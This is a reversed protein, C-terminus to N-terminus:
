PRRLEVGESPFRRDFTYVASPSLSRAAAWILADGLSVRGSPRCLLLAAIVTAKDISHFLINRRQLLAVLADVWEERGVGYVSRVVYVTENLATETLTVEQESEILRAAHEAM